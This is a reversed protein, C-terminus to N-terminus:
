SWQALVQATLAAAERIEASTVNLPPLWRVAQPGSPVTLLGASHLTEVLHISPLRGDPLGSRTSFDASLELALMLGVGRVEQILPSQIGRLESLALEGMQRAKLLLGEEEIIQLVELGAACALPTGGFTTGHSGPGLLDCLQTEKGSKLPVPRNRIWVAGMPVGGAIGKAWSVGDPLVASTGMLSKWACWDGTRGLGCQVEDFFLLLQHRDCLDRAHLLFERSAPRIGIEGQVPELLVAVTNPDQVAALLAPLDNFPVHQFGAMIPEFGKKVKDQGTAAIGGLTRGHFSGEMTIIGNRSTPGDVLAGAAHRPPPPLAENGFKRALKFLAENAEAGSNCFFIKGPAGVCEVLREALLGQLRTQYLNSTHVLRQMQDCVARALRPHSHGVSTVAIGAGFDLYCKGSEDCVRTGEGRVLQLDFRGYTPVVFERFLERTHLPQDKM